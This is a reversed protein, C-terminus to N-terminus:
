PEGTAGRLLDLMTRRPIRVEEGLSLSRIQGRALMAELQSDSIKLIDAAEELTFVAGAPLGDYDAPETASPAGSGDGSALGDAETAAPSLAELVVRMLRDSVKSYWASTEDMLNAVDGTWAWCAVLWAVMESDVDQSLRGRDKFSDVISMLYLKNGEEKDRLAERLGEEPASAVFELFLHAHSTKDQSMVKQTHRECVQRFVEIPDESRSAHFSDVIQAYVEDLAAILIARRNEFHSYLAAPTIGAGRAIRAITAGQIGHEGIANLAAEVIQRKRGPTDSGVASV